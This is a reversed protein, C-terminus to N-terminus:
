SPCGSFVSGHTRRVHCDGSKRFRLAWLRVGDLDRLKECCCPLNLRAGRTRPPCKPRLHAGFLRGAPCARCLLVPTGYVWDHCIQLVSKWGRSTSTRSQGPKSWLGLGFVRLQTPQQKPFGDRPDALLGLREVQNQRGSRAAGAAAPSFRWRCACQLSGFM